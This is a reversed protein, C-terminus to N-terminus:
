QLKYYYILLLGHTAMKIHHMVSWMSSFFQFRKRVLSGFSLGLILRRLRSVYNVSDLKDTAITYKRSM